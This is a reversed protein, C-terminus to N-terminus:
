RVGQRPIVHMFASPADVNHRVEFSGLTPVTLGGHHAYLLPKVLRISSGSCSHVQATEAELPAFGTPGIAVEDGEACSLPLLTKLEATARM